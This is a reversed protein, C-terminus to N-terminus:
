AFGSALCKLRDLLCVAFFGQATTSHKLPVFM